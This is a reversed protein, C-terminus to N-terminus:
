QKVMISNLFGTTFCSVAIRITSEQAPEDSANVWDALFILIEDRLIGDEIEMKDMLDNLQKADYM